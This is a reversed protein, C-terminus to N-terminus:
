GTQEGPEFIRQVERFLSEWRFCYAAAGLALATTKRTDAQPATSFVVV